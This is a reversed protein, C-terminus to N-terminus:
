VVSGTVRLLDLKDADASGAPATYVVIRLDCGHATLVDCDLTVPGVVPHAITKRESGHAAVAGSDWLAAFRPSEGRLSSILAALRRDHPHAAATTRLDAVLAAPLTGARMASMDDPRPLSPASTFVARLLNREERAAAAPDGLLAAWLPTWTLLTWDAAFVALPVNGLRAAIRAVGPPIHTSM